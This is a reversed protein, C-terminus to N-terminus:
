GSRLLNISEDNESWVEVRVARDKASAIDRIRQATEPDFNMDFSLDNLDTRISRGQTVNKEANGQAYAPIARCGAGYPALPADPAGPALNRLNEGLLNM